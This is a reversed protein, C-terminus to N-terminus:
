TTRQYSFAGWFGLLMGLTVGIMISSAPFSPDIESRGITGFVLIVGAIYRVTGKM